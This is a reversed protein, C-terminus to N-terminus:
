PLAQNTHQTQVVEWHDWCLSCDRLLALGLYFLFYFLIFQNWAVSRASFQVLLRTKTHDDHWYKTYSIIIMSLWLGHAKTTWTHTINFHSLTYYGILSHNSSLVKIKIQIAHMNHFRPFAIVLLFPCSGLDYSVPSTIAPRRKLNLITFNLPGFLDNFLMFNHGFQTFSFIWDHNVNVHLAATM